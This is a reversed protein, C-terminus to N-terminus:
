PTAQEQVNEKVKWVGDGAVITLSGRKSPLVTTPGTPQHTTPDLFSVTGAGSVGDVSVFGFQPFAAVSLVSFTDTEAEPQNRQVLGQLQQQQLQLEAGTLVQPLLAPDLTSYAEALVDDYHDLVQQMIATQQPASLAAFAQITTAPVGSAVPSPSSGTAPASATGAPPKVIKPSKRTLASVWIGAVVVVVTAAVAWFPLLGRRRPAPQQSPFAEVGDTSGKDEATRRAM